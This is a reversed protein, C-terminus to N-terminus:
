FDHTTPWTACPTNKPQSNNQITPQTTNAHQQKKRTKIPKHKQKQTNPVTAFTSFIM